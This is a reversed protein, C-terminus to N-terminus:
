FLTHLRLLAKLLYFSVTFFVVKPTNTSIINASNSSDREKKEEETLIKSDEKGYSYNITSSAKM